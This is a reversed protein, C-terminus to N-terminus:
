LSNEQGIKIYTGNQYIKRCMDAKEPCDQLNSDDKITQGNHENYPDDCGKDGNCVHCKIGIKTFSIKLIMFDNLKIKIFSVRLQIISVDIKRFKGEGLEFALFMSLAFTLLRLDM